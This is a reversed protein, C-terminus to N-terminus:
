WSAVRDLCLLGVEGNLIRYGRATIEAPDIGQEAALLALDHTPDAFQTALLMLWHYPHHATLM